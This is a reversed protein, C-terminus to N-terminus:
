EPTTSPPAVMMSAMASLPDVRPDRLQEGLAINAHDRRKRELRDLMANKHPGEPWRTQIDDMQATVEDYAIRAQQRQEQMAGQEIAEGAYQGEAKVRALDLPDMRAEAIARAATARTVEQEIEKAENRDEWAMRDSVSRADMSLEGGAHQKNLVQRLAWGPSRDLGRPTMAEAAEMEGGPQTFATGASGAATSTRTPSQVQDDPLNTFVLEGNPMTVARVRGETSKSIDRSAVDREMVAEPGNGVKPLPQDDSGSDPRQLVGQGSRPQTAIGAAGLVADRSPLNVYPSRVNPDRGLGRRLEAVREPDVSPDNPRAELGALAGIEGTKRVAQEQLRRNETEEESLPKRGYKVYAPSHRPPAM